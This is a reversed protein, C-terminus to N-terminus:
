QSMLELTLSASKVLEDITTYENKSHCSEMACALVITKIGHENLRNADSGGYTNICSCCRSIGGASKKFHQVVEDNDDVKYAKIHEIIEVTVLGGLKASEDEFIHKIRNAEDLANQSSFSRIEGEIEINDPVINKGVGGHITGFNVTTTDDIRGTKIGALAAVAISLANIGKEPAFGAHSAVGQINIKLSIISPAAVAATGVPGVLDLVYGNKASLKSYDIYKSGECYPEEAVTFLVEIDPHKINQEKIVQLAELISVIGSVDDAGLVTDGKSTIRGNEDIVVQKSKGPKVTDMHSSFLIPQSGEYGALKAYINSASNSYGRDKFIEKTNDESVELGLALLKKKLYEAIQVEEYSESDFSVLHIFEEILRDKNIM